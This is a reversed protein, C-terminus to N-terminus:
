CHKKNKKQLMNKKQKTKKIILYDSKDLFDLIM